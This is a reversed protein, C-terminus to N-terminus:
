ITIYMYIHAQRNLGLLFNTNLNVYCKGYSRTWYTKLVKETFIFRRATPGGRFQVCVSVTEYPLSWMCDKRLTELPESRYSVSILGIGSRYQVSVSQEICRCGSRFGLVNLIEYTNPLELWWFMLSKMHKPSSVDVLVNLIEYTQPLELWWFMLSKM